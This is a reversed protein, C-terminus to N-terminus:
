WGFSHSTRGDGLLAWATQSSKKSRSLPVGRCMMASMSAVM